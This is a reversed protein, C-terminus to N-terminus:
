DGYRGGYRDERYERWDARVESIASDARSLANDRAERLCSRSSTLPYFPYAEHLQGCVDYAAHVVRRRLERAGARTRLDLDDYRVPVSLSVKEPPLDLSRRASGEERFRPAQVTVEENPGYGAADPPPLGYNQASGQAAVLVLGAAGALFGLRLNM